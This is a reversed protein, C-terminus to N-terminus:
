AMGAPKPTVAVAGPGTSSRPPPQVPRNGGVWSAPVGPDKGDMIRKVQEADITEYKILADTMAHLKEMNETLMQRAKAYNRDIIKRVELDISHATEDSFARNTTM